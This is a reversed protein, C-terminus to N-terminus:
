TGEVLMARVKEWVPKVRDVEAQAVDFYEQPQGEMMPDTLYGAFQNVHTRLLDEVVKLDDQSFAEGKDELTTLFGHLTEALGETAGAFELEDQLDDLEDATAIITVVWRDGQARMALSSMGTHYTLLSEQASKM